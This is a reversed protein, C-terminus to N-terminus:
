KKKSWKLTPYLKLARARAIKITPVYLFLEEYIRGSKFKLTVIYVGKKHRAVTAVMPMDDSRKTAYANM